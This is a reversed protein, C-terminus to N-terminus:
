DAITKSLRFYECSSALLKQSMALDYVLVSIREIKNLVIAHLGFSHFCPRLNKQLTVVLLFQQCVSYLLNM